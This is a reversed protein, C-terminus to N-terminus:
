AQYLFFSELFVFATVLILANIANFLDAAHLMLLGVALVTLWLGQRVATQLYNGVMERQGWRRRVRFNVLVAACFVLVSFDLYFLTVYGASQGPNTLNVIFVLGILALGLGGPLFWNYIPASLRM